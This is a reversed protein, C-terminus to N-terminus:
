ARGALPIARNPEPRAGAPYLTMMADHQLGDLDFRLGGAEADALATRLLNISANIHTDARWGCACEYTSGLRSNMRGCRPCLRSSNRPDVLLIPVGSWDAKYRIIRHLERRPWNSLRRNLKRSKWKTKIGTLDELAIAAREEKAAGIVANAVQHLRYEIRDHERRGERATLKRSMRRDHAKKKQLRRRREHHREQIVSVDSCDAKVPLMSGEIALVGDMSRENTDLALVAGPEYKKSPAKRFAIIAKGPCVTLSGLSLSEDSLFKRHYESVILPLEVWEGARIPVRLKGSKRDLRYAQNEARFALRKAYPNRAMGRRTAKRYNKLISAAVEAASPIHKAYVDHEERFARYVLSCLKYRSTMGSQLGARIIENVM